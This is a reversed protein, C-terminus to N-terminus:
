EMERTKLNRILEQVRQDFPGTTLDLWVQFGATTPNAHLRRVFAEDDSRAYSFLFWTTKM